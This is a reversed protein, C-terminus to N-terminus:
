EEAQQPPLAERASNRADAEPHNEAIFKLVVANNDEILQPIVDTLAAAINHAVAEMDSAHSIQVLENARGAAVLKQVTPRSNAVKLAAIRRTDEWVACCSILVMANVADTSVLLKDGLSTVIFDRIGDRDEQLERQLATQYTRESAESIEEATERIHDPIGAEDEMDIADVDRFARRRMSGSSLIEPKRIQRRFCGPLVLHLYQGNEVLREAMRHAPIEAATLMMVSMLEWDENAVLADIGHSMEWELTGEMIHEIRRAYRALKRLDM